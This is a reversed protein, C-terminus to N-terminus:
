KPITGSKIVVVATKDAAMTLLQAMSRSHTIMMLLATGKGWRVRTTKSCTKRVSLTVCVFGFVHLKAIQSHLLKFSQAEKM